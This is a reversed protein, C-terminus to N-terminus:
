PVEKWLVQIQQVGSQTDEDTRFSFYRSAPQNDASLLQISWLGAYPADALRIEYLGSGDTQVPQVAPQGFEDWIIVTVGEVPAGATDAVEGFFGTWEVSPRAGAGNFDFRPADTDQMVPGASAADLTVVPDTEEDAPVPTSTLARTATAEAVAQPESERSERLAPIGKTVLLIICVVIVM